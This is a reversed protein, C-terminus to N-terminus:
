NNSAKSWLDNFIDRFLKTISSNQILVATYPQSSTMISVENDNIIITPDFNYSDPLFRMERLLERDSSKIEEAKKSRMALTKAFLNKKIREPVYYTYAYRDTFVKKWEDMNSIFLIEKTSNKLSRQCVDKFGNLGEYYKVIVETKEPTQPLNEIVDQIAEDLENNTESLHELQNELEIKKNLVFLKLKNPNEAILIKRGNKNTQTILGKQILKDVNIHVTTRPTKSKLALDTITLPGFELLKIYLSAETNQVGLNDLLRLFRDTKM